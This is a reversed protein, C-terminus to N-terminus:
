GATRTEVAEAVESAVDVVRASFCCSPVHPHPAREASDPFGLNLLEPVNRLRVVVHQSGQAPCTDLGHPVSRCGFLRERGVEKRGCEGEQLEDLPRGPSALEAVAGRARKLM